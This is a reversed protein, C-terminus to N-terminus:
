FDTHGLVLRNHRVHNKHFAINLVLFHKLYKNAYALVIVALAFLIELQDSIDESKFELWMRLVSLCGEVFNCWHENQVVHAHLCAICRAM